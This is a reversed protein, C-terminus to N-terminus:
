GSSVKWGWLGQRYFNKLMAGTTRIWSPYPPHNTHQSVLTYVWILWSKFPPLLRCLWLSFVVAMEGFLPLQIDALDKKPTGQDGVPQGTNRTSYHSWSLINNMTSGTMEKQVCYYLNPSTPIKHPSSSWTPPLCISAIRMNQPQQPVVKEWVTHSELNSSKIM